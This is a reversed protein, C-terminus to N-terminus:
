AAATKPGSRLSLMLLYAFCAAPVVFAQAKYGSDVLQGMVLPVIAGGSIAMCMLGSLENAREPKEEVTISFLM